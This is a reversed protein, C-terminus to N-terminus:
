LCLKSRTTPRPFNATYPKPRMSSSIERAYPFNKERWDTGSGSGSRIYLIECFEHSHEAAQWGAQKRLIGSYVFKPKLSRTFKKSFTFHRLADTDMRHKEKM